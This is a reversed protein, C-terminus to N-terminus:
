ETEEPSLEIFRLTLDKIESFIFQRVWLGEAQAADRGSDRRALPGRGNVHGRAAM